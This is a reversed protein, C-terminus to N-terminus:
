HESMQIAYPTMVVMQCCSLPSILAEIRGLCSIPGTISVKSKWRGRVRSRARRRNTRYDANNDASKDNDCENDPDGPTMALSTCRFRGANHGSWINDRRVHKGRHVFAWVVFLRIVFPGHKVRRIGWWLSHFNKWWLRRGLLCAALTIRWRVTFGIRVLISAQPWNMCLLLYQVHLLRDM